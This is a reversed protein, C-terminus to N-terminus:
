DYLDIKFCGHSISCFDWPKQKERKFLRVFLVIRSEFKLTELPSQARKMVWTSCFLHSSLCLGLPFCLSAWGSSIWCMLPYFICSPKMTNKSNVQVMPLKGNYEVPEGLSLQFWKYGNSEIRLCPIYRFAFICWSM